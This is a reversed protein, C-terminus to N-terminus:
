NVLSEVETPPTVHVQPEESLSLRAIGPNPIFSNSDKYLECVVNVTHMIRKTRSQNTLFLKSVLAKVNTSPQERHSNRGLLRDTKFLQLVRIKKMTLQQRYTDLFLKKETLHWNNPVVITSSFAFVISVSIMTPGKVAACALQSLLKGRNM